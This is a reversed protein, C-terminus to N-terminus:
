LAMSVAINHSKITNNIERDLEEAEMRLEAIESFFSENFMRSLEEYNEASWIARLNEVPVIISDLRSNISIKKQSLNGLKVTQGLDFM